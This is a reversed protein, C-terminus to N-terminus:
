FRLKSDIFFDKNSFKQNLMILLQENKQFNFVQQKNIQEKIYSFGLSALYDAVDPNVVKIFTKM